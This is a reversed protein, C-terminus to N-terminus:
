QGLAKPEVQLGLLSNGSSVFRSMDAGIQTKIWSVAKQAVLLWEDKFRAMHGHLWLVALVTAWVSSSGSEEPSTKAVEEKNKGLISVLSQDLEWSGDANQLDILRLLDGPWDDQDLRSLAGAVCVSAMKGDLSPVAGEIKRSARRYDPREFPEGRCIKTAKRGVPRRSCGMDIQPERNGRRFRGWIQRLSAGLKPKGSEKGTVPVHYIHENRPVLDCAKVLSQPPTGSYLDGCFHRSRDELMARPVTRHLLPGEIPQKNEAHVAIFATHSSSVGSQTSLAVVKETISEDGGERVEGELAEIAARAGLRHLLLSSDKESKMNFTLKNKLSEEGLKYHLTVSGDMSSHSQGTFQAYVLLRQGHFLVTPPPSLPTVAVGPPVDWQVSIDSVEPQMSFQLSQMVKAQLRDTGTIFQAHGSGEKAMGNVLAASAGEGIGFSFCRHSGANMKVLDTVAKTNGVEGDTFIFLQRPHSPLCPKSYIEKLPGLIETGGLNAEMSKVKKKASNVMKQSYEVSEHFFSEHTSGFGYINFRCGIPLSKLLLLLTDRATDIRGRVSMSGSRDVLFIFEKSSAKSPSTVAKSDPYFSLLAVTDGMLDGPKATPQGAELIATPLHPQVYYLLLEVDRDFRHGPLLRVQAETSDQSLLEVPTLPCNSEISKIQSPSYVHVGLSLTYPLDGSLAGAAETTISKCGAPTYRPNLVTPLCFRLAKDAQVALETVYTLTVSAKEGPPLSGVSLRFVDESEESEELLFAQQGSSLADDYQERAQTKERVQAEVETSGVRARFRCVAASSDMPFIFVAEVPGSEQNEYQLCSSVSAVHGQVEVEVSVSKLPVPDNNLTRLGSNNDM